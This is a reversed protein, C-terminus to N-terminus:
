NKKVLMGPLGSGIGKGYKFHFDSYNRLARVQYAYLPTALLSGWSREMFHGEEINDGRSLSKEFAKWVEKDVKKINLYSAAFVGGYCVQVLDSQPKPMMSEYFAGLNKYPSKFTAEDTAIYKSSSWAYKKMQFKYLEGIDHYASHCNRKRRDCLPIVGCAFGNLSSAVNVMTDMDCWNGIQHLNKQNMEGDKLFLVISDREEGMLVNNDLIYSIYYAYTHDCRGVNPLVQITAMEPAGIVPSGCKTIVHVSSLSYGKTFNSIWYLDSNCHSIVLHIKKTAAAAATTTATAAAANSNSSHSHFGQIDSKSSSTSSPFQSATWLGGCLEDEVCNVCTCILEEESSTSTTSTTSNSSTSNNNSTSSSVTTIEDLVIVADEFLFSGATDKPSLLENAAASSLLWHQWLTVFLSFFFVIILIIQYTSSIRSRPKKIM